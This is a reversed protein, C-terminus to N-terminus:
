ALSTSHRAVCHVMAGVAWLLEVRDVTAYAEAARLM